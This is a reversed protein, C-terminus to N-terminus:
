GRRSRRDHRNNGTTTDPVAEAILSDLTVDVTLVFEVVTPSRGTTRTM